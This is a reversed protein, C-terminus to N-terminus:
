PALAGLDEEQLYLEGYDIFLVNGNDLVIRGRENEGRVLVDDFIIDANIYDDSNFRKYDDESSFIVIMVHESGDQLSVEYKGPLIDEGVIYSGKALPGSKIDGRLLLEDRIEDILSILEETSYNSYDTAESSLFMSVMMILIFVFAVIKKM